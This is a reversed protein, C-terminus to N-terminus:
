FLRFKSARAVLYLLLSLFLSTSTIIVVLKDESWQRIFLIILGCIGIFLFIFFLCGIKELWKENKVQYGSVWYLLFVIGAFIWFGIIGWEELGM